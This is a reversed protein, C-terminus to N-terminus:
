EFLSGGLIIGFGLTSLIITLFIILGANNQFFEIISGVGDFFDQDELM